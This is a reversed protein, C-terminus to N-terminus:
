CQEQRRSGGGNEADGRSGTSLPLTGTDRPCGIQSEADLFAKLAAKCMIAAWGASELIHFAGLTPVASKSSVIVMALRLWCTTGRGSPRQATLGASPERADDVWSVCPSAISRARFWALFWDVSIKMWLFSPVM